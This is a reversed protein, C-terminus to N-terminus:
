DPMIRVLALRRRGSAARETIHAMMIQLKVTQRGQTFRMTFREVSQGTAMFEHFHGRFGTVQEVPAIETFFNRGLVGQALGQANEEAPPSYRTVTGATDLEFLGFPIAPTTAEPVPVAGNDPATPRYLTSTSM